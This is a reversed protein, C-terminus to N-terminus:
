KCKVAKLSKFSIKFVIGVVVKWFKGNGSETELIRMSKGKLLKRGERRLLKSGEWSRSSV